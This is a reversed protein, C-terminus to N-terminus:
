SWTSGQSLLQIAKSWVEEFEEKTIESPEFQADSAIESIPPIPKESLMSDRTSLTASAIGPPGERFIDVKRVEWREENMESYLVIPEDPFSHHWAARIYNM